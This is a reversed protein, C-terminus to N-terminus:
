EALIKKPRPFRQTYMQHDQMQEHAVTVKGSGGVGGFSRGGACRGRPQIFGSAVDFIIGTPEGIVM